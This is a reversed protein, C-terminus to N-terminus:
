RSPRRLRGRGDGHRARASRGPDRRARDYKIGKVQGRKSVPREALEEILEELAERTLEFGQVDIDPIELRKM